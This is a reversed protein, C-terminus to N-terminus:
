LVTINIKHPQQIMVCVVHVWLLYTAIHAAKFCTETRADFNILRIESVQVYFNPVDEVNEYVTDKPDIIYFMRGLGKAFKEASKLVSVNNQNVAYM